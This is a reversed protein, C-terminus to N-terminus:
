RMAGILPYKHGGPCVTGTFDDMDISWIMAGAYGESKVWAMKNRISREDDFGVWQDDSVLYPVKMEDDWIYKASGSSLIECIEYYALFGSEKTYVGATGGGKTAVNVSYNSKDALVFSRGYTPMGIVMKSKDAGMKTWIKAANDVSLQKRWESDSSPAFLPANHGTQSEWKGHFDYAMLNIFDM